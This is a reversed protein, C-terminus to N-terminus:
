AICTAILPLAAQVVVGRGQGAQGHPDDGEDAGDDGGRDVMSVDARESKIQATPPVM